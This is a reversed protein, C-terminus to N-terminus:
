TPVSHEFGAAELPYSENLGLFVPKETERTGVSISHIYQSSAWRAPQGRQTVVSDCGDKDLLAETKLISEIEMLDQISSRIGLAM